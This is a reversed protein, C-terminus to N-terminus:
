RQWGVYGPNWNYTHAYNLTASPYQKSRRPTLRPYVHPTLRGSPASYTIKGETLKTKTISEGVDTDFVDTDYGYFGHDIVYNEFPNSPAENTYFPHDAEVIETKMSVIDQPPGLASQAFSAFALCILLMLPMINKM